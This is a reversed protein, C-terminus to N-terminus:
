NGHLIAKTAMSFQRLQGSSDFQLRVSPNLSVVTVPGIILLPQMRSADDSGEATIFVAYTIWM